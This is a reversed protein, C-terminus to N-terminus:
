ERPPAAACRFRSENRRQAAAHSVKSNHVTHQTWSALALSNLPIIIIRNEKDPHKPQMLQEAVVAAEHELAEIRQQRVLSRRRFFCRRLTILATSWAVVDM